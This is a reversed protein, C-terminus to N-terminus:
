QNAAKNNLRSKLSQATDSLKEQMFDRPAIGSRKIMADATLGGALAALAAATKPYKRVPEEFEEVMADIFNSLKHSIVKERVRSKIARTNYVAWGILGLCAAVLSLIGGMIFATAEPTYRMGVWLFAGYLLACLAACALVVAAVTIAQATTSRRVQPPTMLNDVARAILRSDLLMTQWLM